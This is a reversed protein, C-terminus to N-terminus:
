WGPLLKTALGDLHGLPWAIEVSCPTVHRCSQPWAPWTFASFSPTTWHSPCRSRSMGACPLSAKSHKRRGVHVLPCTYIHTHARARASIGRLDFHPNAATWKTSTLTAAVLRSHGINLSLSAPLNRPRQAKSNPVSSSLDSSMKARADGPIRIKKAPKRSPRTM